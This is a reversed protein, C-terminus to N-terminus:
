KGLKALTADVRALLAVGDQVDVMDVSPLTASAMVNNLSAVGRQLTDRSKHWLILQANDGARSNAALHAYLEGLRVANVGVAYQTRLSNDRKFVEDLIKECELFLTRAKEVSGTKFLAHAFRTQYLGLVYQARVDDPDLAAMKVAVPLAQEYQELAERFKERAALRLGINYRTTSLRDQYDPENPKLALLKEDAWMRKRLLAFAREDIAAIGSLRPDDIHAANNYASSLAQLAREDDPHARWYAESVGILKDLSGMAELSLGMFGFIRAQALYAKVLRDLRQTEDSIRPAFAETLAVGESASDRAFKPGRVVMM